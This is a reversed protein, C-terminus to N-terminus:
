QTNEYHMKSTVKLHIRVLLMSFADCFRVNLVKRIIQKGGKGNSGGVGLGQLAAGQDAEV